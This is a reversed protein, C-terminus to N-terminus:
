HNAWRAKRVERRNNLNVYQDAQVSLEANTKVRKSQLWSDIQSKRFVLRKGERSFPVERRQVKGYLTTIAPNGPLYDSLEKISFWKDTDPRSQGSHSQLLATLDDVKRGLEVVYTPLQDFTIQKNEM